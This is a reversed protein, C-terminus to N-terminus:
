RVSEVRFGHGDHDLDDTDLGYMPTPGEIVLTLEVDDHKDGTYPTARGRITAVAVSEGEVRQYVTLDFGGDKRVPGGTLKTTRGDIEGEIWFNRM